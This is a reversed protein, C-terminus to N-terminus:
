VKKRPTKRRAARNIPTPETPDTQTASGDEKVILEGSDIKVQLETVQKPFDKAFQGLKSIPLQIAQIGPGPTMEEGDDFVLVPQVLIHAIRLNASM